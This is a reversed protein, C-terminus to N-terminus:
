GNKLPRLARYRRAIESVSKADIERLMDKTPSTITFTLNDMEFKEVGRMHQKVDIEIGERIRRQHASVWHLIPRRRGIETRPLKRAYFLSQIHSESVGLMLRAKMDRSLVTEETEVSWLYKRDAYANAVLSFWLALVGYTTKTAEKPNFDVMPVVKGDTSISVFYGTLEGIEGPPIKNGTHHKWVSDVKNMVVHRYTGVSRHPWMARAGRPPKEPFIIHYEWKKHYGDQYALTRIGPVGDNSLDLERTFSVRKVCPIYLGNMYIAGIHNIKAQADTSVWGNVMLGIFCEYLKETLEASELIDMGVEQFEIPETMRYHEPSTYVQNIPHM